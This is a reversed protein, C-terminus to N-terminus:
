TTDQPNNNKKLNTIVTHVVELFSKMEIKLCIIKSGIM